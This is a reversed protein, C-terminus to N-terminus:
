PRAAAARDRGATGSDAERRRGRGHHPLCWSCAADGRAACRADPRHVAAGNGKDLKGTRDLTVSDRHKLRPEAAILEVVASMTLLGQSLSFRKRNPGGAKKQPARGGPARPAPGPPGPISLGVVQASASQPWESRGPPSSWPSPLPSTAMRATSPKRPGHHSGPHAHDNRAANLTLPEFPESCSTARCPRGSERSCHLQLTM